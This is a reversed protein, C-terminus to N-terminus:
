DSADKVGGAGTPSEPVPGNWAFRHPLLASLTLQRQEGELNVLLVPLEQAFEALTERCMGCPAAPPSLDSLVVLARFPHLGRAVAQAVVSREACLTLGFSRNEVNCGAIVTGTDREGDDRGHGALLAAGVRFGSYPAHAKERAARAADILPRWDMPHRLM